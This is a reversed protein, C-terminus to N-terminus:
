LGFVGLLKDLSGEDPIYLFKGEMEDLGSLKTDIILISDDVKGEELLVADIMAGIMDIALAPTSPQLLIGSFETLAIVFSSVLINGVERLASQAMEDIHIEPPATMYLLKKAIIEASEVSLVFMAKGPADGEVKLYLATKMADMQGLAESLRELPVLWVKPVAMDIRTQLMNSLSTAAHGSGINGIEKLAELRIASIEM